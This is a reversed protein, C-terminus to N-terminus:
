NRNNAIQSRRDDAIMHFGAPASIPSSSFTSILPRSFKVCFTAKGGKKRKTSYKGEQKSKKWSKTAKLLKIRPHVVAMNSSRFLVIIKRQSIYEIKICIDEITKTRWCPRRACVRYLYILCFGYWLYWQPGRGAPPPSSPPCGHSSCSTPPFLLINFCPFM